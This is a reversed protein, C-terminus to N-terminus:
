SVEMTNFVKGNWEQQWQRAKKGHRFKMLVMYRNARATKIMRFHSVENGTEEGVFGLFDSPAMYSPVALICLMTCDQDPPPNHRPGISEKTLGHLWPDTPKSLPSDGYLGPTEAADRYLHVIGWVSDTSKQDLPTYQGKTRVGSLATGIGKSIHNEGNTEKPTRPGEQPTRTIDMSEISIDDLRQDSPDSPVHSSALPAVNPGELHPSQHTATNHSLSLPKADRKQFIARTFPQLAKIVTSAVLSPQVQNSERVPHPLLELAVHFFYEPM